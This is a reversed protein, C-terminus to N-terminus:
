TCPHRGGGQTEDRWNSTSHGTTIAAAMRSAISSGVSSHKGCSIGSGTYSPRVHGLYATHSEFGPEHSALSCFDRKAKYTPTVARSRLPRANDDMYVSRTVLPHNDFHSVAVPQLVDRIYQDGALNGPITVLDLKCEHSICGGVMVSGGGYHERRVLPDQAM